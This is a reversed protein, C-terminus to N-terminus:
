KPVVKKKETLLSVQRSDKCWLVKVQLELKQLYAMLDEFSIINFHLSEGKLVIHLFIKRNPEEPFAVTQHAWFILSETIELWPFGLIM